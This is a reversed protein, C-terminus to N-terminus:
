LSALLFFFFVSQFIKEEEEKVFEVRGGAADREARKVEEDCGGDHLGGEGHARHHTPSRACTRM